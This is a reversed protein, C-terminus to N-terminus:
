ANNAESIGKIFLRRELVDSVKREWIYTISIGCRGM